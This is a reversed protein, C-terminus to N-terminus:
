RQVDAAVLGLAAAMERLQPLPDNLPGDVVPQVLVHDAGAELHAEVTEVAHPLGVGVVSRVLRPSPALDAETFGQRLWSRRYNPMGAYFVVQQTATRLQAAEDGDLSVPQAVVLWRDSGVIARAERTSEAMIQFPIAGDAAEGALATMKPGIAAVLRAPREAGGEVEDSVEDMKELYTRMDELPKGHAVGLRDLEPGHSVGLGCVFRGPHMAGLTRAAAEASVAHRLFINAIATGVVLRDTATLYSAARMFAELGRGEPFFLSGYGLGEIQQAVAQGQATTPLTSNWFVGIKSTFAIQRVDQPM